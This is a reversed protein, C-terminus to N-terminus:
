ILDQRADDIKEQENNYIGFDHQASACSVNEKGCIDCPALWCGFAEKQKKGYKDGCSLCVDFIKKMNM